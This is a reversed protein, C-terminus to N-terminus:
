LAGTPTHSFCLSGCPDLCENGNQGNTNTQMHIPGHKVAPPLFHWEGSPKILATYVPLSKTCHPSFFCMKRKEKKQKMQRKLTFYTHRSEEVSLNENSLDWAAHDICVFFLHKKNKKLDCAKTPSSSFSHFQFGWRPQGKRLPEYLPIFPFEM